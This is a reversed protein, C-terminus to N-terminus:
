YSEESVDRVLLLGSSGVSAVKNLVRCENEEMNHGLYLSGGPKLIRLLERVLNCQMEKNGLEKLGGYNIAHAFQLGDKLFNLAQKCPPPPGWTPSIVQKPPTFFIRGKCVTKCGQWGPTCERLIISHDSLVYVFFHQCVM